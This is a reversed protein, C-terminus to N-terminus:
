LRVVSIVSGKRLPMHDMVNGSNLVSVKLPHEASELILRKVEGLTVGDKVYMKYDLNDEDVITLLM